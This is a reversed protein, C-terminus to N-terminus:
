PMIEIVNGQQKELLKKKQEDFEEKSLIGKEM